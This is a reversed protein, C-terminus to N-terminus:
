FISLPEKTVSGTKPVVKIMAKLIAATEQDPTQKLDSAIEAFSIVLDRLLLAVVAETKPNGSISDLAKKLRAILKQHKTNM